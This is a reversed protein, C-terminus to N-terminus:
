RVISLGSGRESLCIEAILGGEARNALTLRGGLRAVTRSVISLGLGLGGTSRQRADDLRVFPEVVRELMDAPIGPGNDQVAVKIESADRRLGIVVHTGYKLANDVLNGVARKMAIPRTTMELHDPGVYDVAHGADVMADAITALLVALDVSVPEDPDDDGGLFALLSSVMGTMEQVDASIAERLAVDGVSDARLKLRALPTRFDHGVAALAETRESILRRIRAQMGNFAHTVRRVELPGEEPVTLSTDGDFRDAAVALRRLPGLTRRIVLGSLVILLIAPILALIVRSTRLNLNTVPQRTQFYLWSGDALMVGGTVVASPGPQLLALRLDAKMLEEEWGVIQRKMSVLPPPTAAPPPLNARWELLYRATTLEHALQSRETPPAESVLRRSIVLHEALRHAEDERVSFQSSQEYLVTSAGFELLIALFLVIVIQGLLGLSQRDFGKM